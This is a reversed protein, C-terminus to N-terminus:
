QLHIELHNRNGVKDSAKLTLKGSDSPFHQDVVYFGEGTKYDWELLLWQLGAMLSFNKIGSFDDDINFKLTDGVQPTIVNGVLKLEPKLTDATVAYDGFSRTRTTMWGDKYTGGEAIPNGKKSFSIVLLKDSFKKGAEDVKISVSCYKHLPTGLDCIGHVSSLCGKVAPKKEYQFALTDYVANVPASFRFGESTFSNERAPYFISEPKNSFAKPLNVNKGVLSFEIESVNGFHDTVTYKCNYVKGFDVKLIGDQDGRDYIDLRNNPSLYTRHVPIRKESRYAYDIHTNVYRKTSFSLEDLTMSYFRNGDIELKISYIGCPNDSTSHRDLVGVGFSISGQVEIPDDKSLDWSENQKQIHLYYPNGGDIGSSNGHGYIALTKLEPEKEDNIKLGHQTPNIPHQSKSDRIEFHVHPGGSGGSNGSYAIVDGAKFSFKGASPNLDVGYNEKSYQQSKVWNNVEDSFRSLHAYVSTTGDAHSLYIAKGYGKVEVKVRSVSGAKAARVPLGIKGDTKLDVGTHFHGSRVEGFSGSAKLVGDLPPVLGSQQSFLMSNSGLIVLLTLAVRMYERWKRMGNVM